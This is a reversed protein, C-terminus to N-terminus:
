AGNNKWATAWIFNSPSEEADLAIMEKVIEEYPVNNAQMETQKARLTEWNNLIPQMEVLEFGFAQMEEIIEERTYVEDFISKDWAGTFQEIYEGRLMNKNLVGMVFVGDPKLVRRVEQLIKERNDSGFHRIFRFSFVLDFTNDDFSLNYADEQQTIWGDSLRKKASELMAPSSDVAYMTQTDQTDVDVAVRAPGTALDMLTEPSFRQIMRNVFAVEQLHEALWLPESFREAVYADVLNKDKYRDIIKDKGAVVFEQEQNMTVNYM